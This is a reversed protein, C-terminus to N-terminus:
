YKGMRERIQVAGKLREFLRFYGPLESIGSNIKQLFTGSKFVNAMRFGQFELYNLLNRMSKGPIVALPYLDQVPFYRCFFM